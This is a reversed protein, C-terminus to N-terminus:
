ELIRGKLIKQRRGLIDCKVPSLHNIIGFLLEILHM